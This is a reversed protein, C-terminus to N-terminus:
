RYTLKQLARNLINTAYSRRLASEQSSDIIPITKDMVKKLGTLFEYYVSIDKKNEPETKSFSELKRLLSGLSERIVNMKATFKKLETNNEHDQKYFKEKGEFSVSAKKSGPEFAFTIATGQMNSLAKVDVESYFIPRHFYAIKKNALERKEKDDGAAQLESYFQRTLSPLNKKHVSKMYNSVDKRYKSLNTEEVMKAFQNLDSEKGIM